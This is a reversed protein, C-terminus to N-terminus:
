ELADYIHHCEPHFEIFEWLQAERVAFLRALASNQCDRHVWGRRKIAWMTLVIGAAEASVTRDFGNERNVLHVRGDDPMMYGGGDPLRIFHWRGGCYEPVHKRALAYVQLESIMFDDAFLYPLFSLRDCEEVNLIRPKVYHM